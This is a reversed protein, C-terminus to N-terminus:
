KKNYILYLYTKAMFNGKALTIKKNDESTKSLAFDM